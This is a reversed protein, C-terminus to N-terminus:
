PKRGGPVLITGSPVATPSSIANAPFDLIAQVDVGYLAAIEALTEGLRVHHIIGDVSPIQILAGEVLEGDRLAGENNWIAYEPRLGFRRAVVEVTDGERVEVRYFIPLIGRAPAISPTVAVRTSTPAGAAVGPLTVGAVDPASAPAGTGLDEDACAGVLVMLALLTSAPRWMSVKM